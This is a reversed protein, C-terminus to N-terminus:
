IPNLIGIRSAEPNQNREGSITPDHGTTYHAYTETSYNFLHPGVTLFYIRYPDRLFVSFNNRFRKTYREKKKEEQDSFSTNPILLAYPICMLKFSVDSKERM